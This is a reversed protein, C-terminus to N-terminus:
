SPTRHSAALAAAFTRAVLAAGADSPDIGDDGVLSAPTSTREATVTAAHLDVLIAGSSSVVQNTVTNYAAVTADLAAPNPVPSPCSFLRDSSQTGAMCALYGPLQDLPPTNAVLVKSAGQRRLGSVLSQLQVGYAAPTVGDFVDNVNLWVTVISPALRLAVPVQNQLAQATTSGPVAMNYFISSGSLSSRYFQQTWAHLLPDSSGAGVSDSSGVAVYVDSRTAPKAKPAKVAVPQTCASLSGVVALAGILRLLARM